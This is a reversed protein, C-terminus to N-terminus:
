RSFESFNEELRAAQVGRAKVVVKVQVDVQVEVEVKVGLVPASVCLVARTSTITTRRELSAWSQGPRLSLTMSRTM